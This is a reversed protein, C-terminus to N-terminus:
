NYWVKPPGFLMDAGGITITVIVWVLMGFALSGPIIAFICMLAYTCSPDNVDFGFRRRYLYLCVLNAAHCLILFWLGCFYL